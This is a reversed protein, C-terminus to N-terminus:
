RVIGSKHRYAHCCINVAVPLGAIHTPFYEINVGLATTKGGLGAPGINLENVLLLIERELSEYSQNLNHCGIERTLAKKALYAAKEFTGGIGVGVIIPPCPNPGAKKVTEVVFDKVGDVGDAPKLMKIASMNESGFGKPAVTIKIEDGDVIDTYIIAPTNKNTNKREFLPDDVVSMRLYGKTYAKEVGGNIADYLSKGTLIVGQGIELFIVAMGTDQCMPIRENEAIDDNEIIKQLVLKPLEKTELEIGKNISDLVDNGISYNAELLLEKVKEEILITNIQKM